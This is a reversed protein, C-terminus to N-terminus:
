VWWRFIIVLLIISIIAGTISVLIARAYETDRKMNKKNKCFYVLFIIAFILVVSLFYICYVKPLYGLFNLVKNSM